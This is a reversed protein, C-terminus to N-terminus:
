LRGASVLAALGECHKCRGWRAFGKCSCDSGPGDLCVTYDTAGEDTGPTGTFKVLRFARGFDSAFPECYYGTRSKGVALEVAFCGNVATSIRCHRSVPKRTRTATATMNKEGSLAKIEM